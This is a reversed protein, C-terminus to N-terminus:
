EEEQFGTIDLLDGEEAEQIDLIDVGPKQVEAPDLTIDSLVDEEAEQIDLIDVGPKQVEAPDLTIDLLDGEETEQIDLIDVGLEQVEAPDLTIDSLVDEEAEQIDLIDVGPKQVEIDGLIIESGKGDTFAPGGLTQKEKKTDPQIVKKLVIDKFGLDFLAKKLEQPIVALGIRIEDGNIEFVEVSIGLKDALIQIHEPLSSKEESATYEFASKFLRRALQLGFKPSGDKTQYKNQIILKTYYVDLAFLAIIQYADKKYSDSLVAAGALLIKQFDGLRWDALMDVAITNITPLLIQRLIGGPTLLAELGSQAESKVVGKIIGKGVGAGGTAEKAAEEIVNKGSDEAVEKGSGKFFDRVKSFAKSFIKSDSFKVFAIIAITLVTLFRILDNKIVGTLVVYAVAAVLITKIAIVLGEKGAEVLPDFIKNVADKLKGFAGKAIDGIMSFLAGTPAGKMYDGFMKGDAGTEITWSALSNGIALAATRWLASLIEKGAKIAKILTLTGPPFLCTSLIASFAIEVLTNMIDTATWIKKAWEEKTTSSGIRVGNDDLAYATIQKVTFIKKKKFDGLKGDSTTIVIDINGSDNRHTNIKTASDSWSVWEGDDNTTATYTEVYIMDGNIDYKMKEKTLTYEKDKNDELDEESGGIGNQEGKGRQSYGTTQGLSDYTIGWRDFSYSYGDATGEEHLSIVQMKSNYIMDTTVVKYYSRTMEKISSSTNDADDKGGFLSGIWDLIGGVKTKSDSSSEIEKEKMFWGIKVTSDVLGNSDYEMRTYTFYEQHTEPDTGSDITAVTQNLSNYFIHTEKHYTIGGSDGKQL